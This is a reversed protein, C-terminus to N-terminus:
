KIELDEFTPGFRPTAGYRGALYNREFVTTSRPRDEGEFDYLSFLESAGERNKEVLWIQDRRFLEQDMLTSDHTAFILQAGKKNVEPRQFLELLKRTLLPHMSCDLEDVVLTAGKDLAVLFPGLVAFFRQTGRSEDSFLDFTVTEDTDAVRHSTQVDYEDPSALVAMPHGSDATRALFADKMARNFRSWENQRPLLDCGTIGLDAHNVMKLVRMRFADDTAMREATIEALLSPWTSMDFLSLGDRFWAFLQGLLKVNMDAGRSLALGNDRTRDKLVREDAEGFRPSFKWISQGKETDYRREYSVPRKRGTYARLWEELVCEATASFGYEFRTDDVWVNVDFRCPQKACRSDLRFPVIGRIPDGQNMTTASDLVFSQMVSIAEILNSKGSANAGYMAAAKVLKYKGLNVLNDPHREDEGAVLSLAQEERFSRFNSVKFEILM